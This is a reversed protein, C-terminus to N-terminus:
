TAGPLEVGHALALLWRGGRKVLADAFAVSSVGEGGDATRYRARQVGTLVATEGNLFVHLEEGWVDLLEFPIAAINKLFEGRGADTGGPSRYVFDEALLRGLAGVDKGRIARMTEREVRLVAERDEAHTTQTAM